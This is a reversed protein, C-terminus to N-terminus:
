EYVWYGNTTQAKEAGNKAPTASPSAKRFYGVLTMDFVLTSYAAGVTASSGYGLQHPMYVLWRDGIHMNQLATAFGTVLANVAFTSPQMTAENYDGQWSQDFILGQPYSTSPLLRGSYHVKVSDTYLPCGSGSGANLVDVLVHDYSHTAVQENLSWARLVKWETNGGAVLQKVEAYKKDFFQENKTQWDPFEEAENDTEKCSSVSVAFLTTM